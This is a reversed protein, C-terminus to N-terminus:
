LPPGRANKDASRDREGREGLPEGLEDGWDEGRRPWAREGAFLWPGNPDGRAEKRWRSGLLIAPVSTMVSLGNSAAWAASKPVTGAGAWVSRLSVSLEWEPWALRV